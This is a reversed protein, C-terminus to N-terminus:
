RHFFGFFTLIAGVALWVGGGITLGYKHQIAKRGIEEIKAPCIVRFAGSITAIWGLVTIIVPWSAIWQNHTLVIAMGATMSLVGSLFVLARSRMM